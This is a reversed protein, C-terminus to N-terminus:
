LQIYRCHDDRRVQEAEAEPDIGFDGPAPYNAEKVIGEGGCKSCRHADAQTQDVFFGLGDCRPCEAGYFESEFSVSRKM